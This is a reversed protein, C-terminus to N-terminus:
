NSKEKLKKITKTLIEEQEKESFFDKMSKQLFEIALNSIHVTLKEETERTEQIIQSRAEKLIKEAQTKTYEESQKSLEIAQIKAGEIIKNAQAQAKKLIVKEEEITKELLKRAEEAKQLGEKITEERNKLMSLVPKYLLRKLLYFIILFNVIQAVLLAPEFGFNKIIEM